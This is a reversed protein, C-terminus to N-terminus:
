VCVCVCEYVCMCMCIYANPPARTAFPDSSIRLHWTAPSNDIYLWSLASKISNRGPPPRLSPLAFHVQWKCLRHRAHRCCAAVRQLVSCCVAVCQLVSCCVAVRQWANYAVCQLVRCCEAVSQWVSCCVAVSQLVRGFVALCQLVSCCTAVCQICCSVFHRVLRSNLCCIDFSFVNLISCWFKFM